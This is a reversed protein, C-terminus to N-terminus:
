IFFTRLMEFYRVFNVTEARGSDITGLSFIAGMTGHYSFHKPGLFMPIAINVKDVPRAWERAIHVIEFIYSQRGYRFLIVLLFSNM